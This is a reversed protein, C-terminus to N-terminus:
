AAPTPNFTRQALERDLMFLGASNNNTLRLQQVIQDV